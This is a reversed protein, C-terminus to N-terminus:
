DVYAVADVQLLTERRRFPGAPFCSRAPPNTPFYEKYAENMPAYNNAMDALCITVQLMNDLSSGAAELKEKMRELVSRIQVKADGPEARRNPYWGGTGSLFILNGSRVAGSLLAGRRVEGPKLGIIQKKPLSSKEGHTHAVGAAAGGVMGARLLSRRTRSQSKSTSKM